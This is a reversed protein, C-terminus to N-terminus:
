PKIGRSPKSEIVPEKKPKTKEYDDYKILFLYMLPSALLSFTLDIFSFESGRLWQISYYLVESVLLAALASLLAVKHKSLFFRQMVQRLLMSIFLLRCCMGFFMGILAANM